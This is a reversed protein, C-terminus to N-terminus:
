QFHVPESASTIPESRFDAFSDLIEDISDATLPIIDHALLCVTDKGGTTSLANYVLEDTTQANSSDQISANWDFYEYGKEKLIKIANQRIEANHRNVSGGPFRYLFPKVGTIEEVSKAASEVDRAFALESAYIQKYIHTDSHVGIMHGEAGIRRLTDPYKRANSGVVFFTAKINRRKLADLIKSTTKEYPGDDFTFYIVKTKLYNMVGDAIGGAIKEQYNEDTILRRDSEDFLNGAAISCAAMDSAVLTTSDGFAVAGDGASDSLGADRAGSKFLTADHILAALKGGYQGFYTTKLGDENYAAYQKINIFARVDYLRATEVRRKVSVSVDGSRTMVVQFGRDELNRKVREAIDMNIDKEVANAFFLGRDDGGGSADVAIIASGDPILASPNKYLYEELTKCGKTKMDFAIPEGVYTIHWPEYIYGTIDQVDNGYRMIFGYEYAHSKIWECEPTKEFNAMDGFSGILDLARGTQHESHGPRASRTDATEPGYQKIAQSYLYRQREFDRYASAVSLKLGNELANERMTLFADRTEPTALKGNLVEVLEPPKYNDPLKNYKNVLLPRQADSLNIDSYFDASLGANVMWVIDEDALSPRRRKYAMYEDYRLGDYYASKFFEASEEDAPYSVSQPRASIVAASIAGRSKAYVAAAALCVSLAAASCLLAGKLIPQAANAFVSNLAASLSSNLSNM